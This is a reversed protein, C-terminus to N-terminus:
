WPQWTALVNIATEPATADIGICSHSLRSREPENLRELVEAITADEISHSWSRQEPIVQVIVRQLGFSAGYPILIEPISSRRSTM